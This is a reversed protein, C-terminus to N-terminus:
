ADKGLYSLNLLIEVALRENVQSAARGGPSGDCRVSLFGVLHDYRGGAAVIDPVTRKRKRVFAVFQFIVGCHHQVKYVLGM